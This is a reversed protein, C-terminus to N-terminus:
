AFSTGLGGMIKVAFGNVWDMRFAIILLITIVAPTAFLKLVDVTPLNSLRSCSWIFDVFMFITCM